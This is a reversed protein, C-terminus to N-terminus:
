LREVDLCLLVGHRREMCTERSQAIIAMSYRNTTSVTRSVIVLDDGYLGSVNRTRTLFAKVDM